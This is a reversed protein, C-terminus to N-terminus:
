GVSCLGSAMWRPRRTWKRTGRNKKWSFTACFNCWFKAWNWSKTKARRKWLSNSGSEERRWFNRMSHIQSPYKRRYSTCFLGPTTKYCNIGWGSSIPTDDNSKRARKRTRAVPPNQNSRIRRTRRWAKSIYYNKINCLLLNTKLLMVRLSNFLSLSHIITLILRIM